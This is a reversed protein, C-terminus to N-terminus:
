LMKYKNKYKLVLFIILIIILIATFITALALCIIAILFYDIDKNKNYSYNSNQNSNIYTEKHKKSSVKNIGITGNGSIRINSNYKDLTIIPLVFLGIIFLISMFITIKRKM